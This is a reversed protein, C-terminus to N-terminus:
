EIDSGGPALTNYAGLNPAWDITSAPTWDETLPPHNDSATLLDAFMRLHSLDTINHEIGKTVTATVTALDHNEFLAIVAKIRKRREALDDALLFGKIGDPLVKLHSAQEIARPKNAYIALTAQWDIAETKHVYHRPLQSILKEGHSDYVKVCDWATQVFVQQKYHASPLHYREKGITIEGYKNVTRQLSTVPEYRMEPLPLLVAKDYEWLEDIPVEKSYHLSQRDRQLQDQLTANSAEFDTIALMPILFNRRVYGVANEVCGKENGAGPAAFLYTFGFRRHFDLFMTTLTRESRSVIQKVVPTLNDFLIYPPVGGIELFMDMLGFFLCESNQAPLIRAFRSNSYPFAIVLHYLKVVTQTVPDLALFEGFDVQAEGCPHELRIFQEVKGQCTNRLELKAKRVCDRVTRESGQYGVKLLGEYISKATRRHKRRKLQDEQLWAEVYEEFGDMVVRKRRRKPQQGFDVPSDAHKKATTWCINLRSAIESISAGERERLEKIYNAQTM